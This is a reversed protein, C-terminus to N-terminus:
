TLQAAITPDFALEKAKMTPTLHSYHKEIMPISTGMQRALTHADIGSLLSTTAYTHRLSYLSRRRGEKDKLLTLRNLCREFAGHLDEPPSGNPLCFVLDDPVRDDKGCLADFHQWAFERVILSRPGTKGRVSLRLYIKGDAEIEEVDRWRLNRTETGPRMGTALIIAVYNLLLYNIWKSVKKRGKGAHAKLDDLIAEVENPEFWSGKEGTAGNNELEPVDGRLKHKYAYKFVHRLAINQVNVTNRKPVHGIKEIRWNEFDDLNRHDIKDIQMKGFFPILYQDIVSIYTPAIASGRVGRKAKLKLASIVKDAVDAFSSGKTTPLDHDTLIDHVLYARHAALKALDLDEEGTGIRRWGKKVEKGNEKVVPRFRAQWKVSGSRKYLVIDGNQLHHLNSM